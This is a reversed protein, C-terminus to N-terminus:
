EREIINKLYDPINILRIRRDEESNKESLIAVIADYGISTVEGLDVAISASGTKGAEALLRTIEPLMEPKRLDGKLKITAVKEM